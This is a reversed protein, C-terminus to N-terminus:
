EANPDVAIAEIEILLGEMALDSCITARAPTTAMFYKSYVENYAGFDERRSLWVTTKIIDALTAGADKLVRQLNAIVQETQTEITDGVIDGNEDISIAGSVFILGKAAVAECFAFQRGRFSVPGNIIKKM